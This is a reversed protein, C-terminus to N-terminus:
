QIVVGEPIDKRRVKRGDSLEYWGGRGTYRATLAEETSPPADEEEADDHSEETEADADAVADENKPEEVQADEDGSSPDVLDPAETPETPAPADAVEFFTDSQKALLKALRPSAEFPVNKPYVNSRDIWSRETDIVKM